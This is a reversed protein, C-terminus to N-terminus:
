NGPNNIIQMTMTFSRKFEGNQSDIQGLIPHTFLKSRNINRMFESIRTNSEARADVTVTNGNKTISIVFIGDPITQVLGDFVRVTFPRMAQLGQIVRMRQLLLERTNKLNQIEKIQRQYLQVQSSLYNNRSNQHAIQSHYYYHVGATAILALLLAAFLSIFYHKRNEERMEERWPLLNVDIM